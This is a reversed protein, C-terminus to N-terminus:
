IRGIMLKGHYRVQMESLAVQLNILSTSNEKALEEIKLSVKSNFDRSIDGVNKLKSPNELITETSKPYTELLSILFSEFESKIEKM